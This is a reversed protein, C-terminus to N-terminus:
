WDHVILMVSESQEWVEAFIRQPKFLLIAFERLREMKFVGSDNAEVFGLLGWRRYLYTIADSNDM